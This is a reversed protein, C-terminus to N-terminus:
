LLRFLAQTAQGVEMTHLQEIRLRPEAVSALEPEPAVWSALPSSGTASTAGDSDVGTRLVAALLEDQDTFTFRLTGLVREDFAIFLSRLFLDVDSGDVDWFVSQGLLFDAGLLAEIRRNLGRLLAVTLHKADDLTDIISSSNLGVEATDLGLHGALAEYDPAVHIITFRRRLAADLPAVSRDSSNLAAVIKLGTSFQIRIPVDRGHVTEFDAAVSMTFDPFPRDIWEGGVGAAPDSRKGKDLIALTDGFIAAANGRNFEDAILLARHGPEECWHALSLLPGPRAELEIGVSSGAKPLLGVVFEEYSYSPHFVLSCVKNADGVSEAWGDHVADPDFTLKPSGDLWIRRLDELAVTKGTGPPGVLLVNCERSLADQIRQVIEPARVVVAPSGETDSDPVVVTCGKNEPLQDMANRVSAPLLGASASELGSPAKGLYARVHLTDDEGILKVAVLWPNLAESNFLDWEAEAEDENSHTPDGVFTKLPSSSSSPILRWPDPAKSEWWAVWWRLAQPPNNDTGPKISGLSQGGPWKLTVQRQGFRGELQAACEGSSQIYDKSYHTGPFRGYVARYATRNYRWCWVAEVDQAPV